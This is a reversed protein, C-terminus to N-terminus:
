NRFNVYSSIDVLGDLYLKVVRQLFKYQAMSLSIVTGNPHPIIRIYRKDIGLEPNSPDVKLLTEFAKCQAIIDVDSLYSNIVVSPIEEDILADIIRSIFPSVLSYKSQIVNLGNRLPQPLKVDMYQSVIKDITLSKERLTYTNADTLQKLPVIVDKIQYPRGNAPDTSSVGDHEESFLLDTRHKVAGDITIRLVKDDRIDFRNNNSLFGYQVFGYDDVKDMTMDSNCFGTMRVHIKQEQTLAPQALYTKNLIYVVPFKVIYDLGNILSKGNLFLDIEGLPVPLKNPTYVAGRNEEESLTFSLVGNVFSISLDYDLFTSDDRVMLYQNYQLNNWVLKGNVVKYQESGTIDRWENNPIGGNLFCMYVRYNDTAPLPLNDTGFLVNPRYTGKGSIAEILTAAANVCSYEAGNAHYYQGLLYGSADYEYITSNSQLAYPLTSVQRGSYSTTKSPTDAVLKSISNYGYAEQIDSMTIGSYRSRMIRTYASAELNEAKWVGVTSDIGTLAQLIKDDPLKYLEFIRNNDQVLPRYYGSNRVTVKLKFERHDLPSDSILANLKNAIHDFYDVVVSYDRHTVMRHSDANNRHYYLGRNIGDTGVSVVHVDIDDQYEITDNSGGVYHLLYKYKGDLTSHFTPLDSVTFTVVRKVSSDYVFEAVDGVQITIPSLENVEIGNVYSNVYGAKSKYVSCLHQLDLIQQMNQVKSGTAYMNDLVADARASQYYANSYFRIFIDDQNFDVNIKPDIEIAFLLNRETTFMYYSTFRPVQVGNINYLNVLVKNATITDSFKVWSENVWLNDDNTLGLLAPYIQGIQFVHYRKSNSPLAIQRNMAPFKNLEGNDRTIRKAAFILQRDQEPTCWVNKVAHDILMRYM